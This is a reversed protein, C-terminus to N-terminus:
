GTISVVNEGLEPNDLYNGWAQMLRERKPLATGRRYAAEVKDPLKHALAHEVVERDFQGLDGAWDRFSSRFGHPVYGNADLGRLQQLMAMNSMPKGEVAGPFVYDGVRPLAKLLARAQKSLPVTHEKGAKMRDAPITWLKPNDPDDFEDWTAERVEGSRTATLILFELGKASVSDRERLKTMFAPVEAFPMASFNGGKASAFVHELHGKWRAPNEGDRFQHVKAWDLVREVRARVRSGTEATRHWIPTLFKVVMPTDIEAVNLDGFAKSARGLTEKWQARHKDSRFSNLHEALYQDVCAAFTMTSAQERIRQEHDAARKERRAEIPDGGLVVMERCAKATERAKALSIVDCPGLGMMRVKKTVPSTYRYVWSRTVGHKKDLTGARQRHAVQVYLGVADSDAHYGERKLALVGKPTLRKSAKRAM